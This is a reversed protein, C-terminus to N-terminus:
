YLKRIFIKTPVYENKGRVVSSILTVDATVKEKGFMEAENVVPDLEIRVRPTMNTIKGAWGSKKSDRDMARLEIQVQHIDEIKQNKPYDVAKPSEAIAAPTIEIPPLDEGQIVVSSNPDKKAPALFKVANEAAGKKDRVASEVIAQFAEPTMKVEGAGINIITNNNATINPSQGKMANTALVAGYVAVAGIAVGVITNRVVGNERIKDLFKNLDDDSKFFLKVLVTEILSGSEVKEIYIESRVIDTKTIGEIVRPVDKMLGELAQLAAIVEAIPVPNETNYYVTHSATYVYAAM